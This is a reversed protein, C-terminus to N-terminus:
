SKSLGTYSVFWDLPRGVCSRTGKRQAIPLDLNPTPDSSIADVPPTPAMTAPAHPRRQYTQGTFRDLSSSNTTTSCPEDSSVILPVPIPLVLSVSENNSSLSYYSQDEFFTVDASIYVRGNSPDYCRYGKQTCSYDLFM